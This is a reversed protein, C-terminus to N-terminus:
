QNEDYAGLDEVEVFPFQCQSGRPVPKQAYAEKLEKNTMEKEAFTFVPFFTEPWEKICGRENLEVPAVFYDEGQANAIAKEPEDFIGAFEWGAGVKEGVVYLTNENTQWKM